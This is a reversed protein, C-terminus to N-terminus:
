FKLKWLDEDGFGKYYLYIGDQFVRPDKNKIKTKLRINAATQGADEIFPSRIVIDDGELTVKTKEGRIKAIRASREGLFNEIHVSNSKIQISMPFHAYVIKMKYIFNAQAGKMMNEIHARITNLLANEKKRPHYTFITLSDDRKELSIPRAFKFDRQIVGNPGKVTIVKNKVSVTLDSPLEVTTEVLGFESM